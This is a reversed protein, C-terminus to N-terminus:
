IFGGKRLLDGRKFSNLNFNKTVYDSTPQEELQITVPVKHPVWVENQQNMYGNSRLQDFFTRTDADSLNFTTTSSDVPVQIYDVDNTLSFNYSKLIVPIDNYVYRGYASLLLIPPPAGAVAYDNNSSMAAQRGFDMLSVSRIFHMCALTYLAETPTNSIFEGQINFITNSTNKYNNYNSNSHVPSQTEYVVSRQETITPTVNWVLGNSSRLFSLLTPNSADGYDGYVYNAGADKPRLRVRRDIM